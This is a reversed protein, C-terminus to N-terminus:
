QKPVPAAMPLLQEAKLEEWFDNPIPTAVLRFNEEIEAASRAGPIVSAVAPHALPFQLAAARLPVSYRLCVQELRRVKEIIEAPANQYEFKTGSVAGGALIGSNFPAGLIVSIRKQACLPLLENLGSQDILTYRNALLFCDFEAERAFRALTDAHNTGVGIADVTGENRLARLAPYAGRLAEDYHDEPDHIFLINVRELGLRNLSAELSRMVGDYSFDFVPEFSAPNKFWVSEPKACPALLRGVKTSLVFGSREGDRLVEGVRRESVGHGYLPATDVYNIGLARATEVAARASAESVEEYLGGLAAAGMGLRTVALTTRAISIKDTPKM